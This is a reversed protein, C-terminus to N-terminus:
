VRYKGNSNNQKQSLKSEYKDIIFNEISYEMVNLECIKEIDGEEIVKQSCPGMCLPLLKCNLCKENDFTSKGFRKTIKKMDWKITGDGDLYGDRNVEIFDRATCKFVNGDYNVVAQNYRDAYCKHTSLPNLGKLNSHFGQERFFNVEEKLQTSVKYEDTFTQWIRQFAISIKNRNKKPFYKIIDRINILTKDTFNIRVVVRVDDIQECLLNINSVIQDFTPNGNILIRTKDHSERNGDLTIQFDKLEIEKMKKIMAESILYGNTTIGNTFPIQKKRCLEKFEISLKYVCDDFCILPEGGFWNLNLSSIKNQTILETIHRRIKEETDANISGAKLTEYCYWCKFNCSMTPNITLHYNKTKFVALKNRFSIISLECVDKEILFGTKIFTEFLIPENKELELLNNENKCFNDYMSMSIKFLSSNMSNFCIMGNEYSVYNNYKSLKYMIKNGKMM